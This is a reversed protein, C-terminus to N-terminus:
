RNAGSPQQQGLGQPLGQQYQQGFGQQQGMPINSVQIEYHLPGDDTVALLVTAQNRQGTTTNLVGTVAVQKALEAAETVTVIGVPLSQGAGTRSRIEIGTAAPAAPRVGNGIGPQTAQNTMLGTTM